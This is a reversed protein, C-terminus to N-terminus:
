CFTRHLNVVLYAIDQITGRIGPPVTKNNPHVGHHYGSRLVLPVTEDSTQNERQIKMTTILIIIIYKAM